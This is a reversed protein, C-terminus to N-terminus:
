FANFLDFSALSFREMTGFMFLSEKALKSRGEEGQHLMVLFRTGQVHQMPPSPFCEEYYALKGM